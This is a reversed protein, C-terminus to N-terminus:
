EYCSFNKIDNEKKLIAKNLKAVKGELVDLRKIYKTYDVKKVEEMVEAEKNGFLFRRLAKLNKEKKKNM